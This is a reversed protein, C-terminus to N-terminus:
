GKIFLTNELLADSLQKQDLVVKGEIVTSKAADQAVKVVLAASFGEMQKAVTKFNITSSVNFASITKKLLGEIEIIGPKPMEIIDDFRRFLANDIIGDFNTTAILLGPSKLDELLGLLMNVLRHMEGVDHGHGRSKAIFDFEDLLIVCPYNEFVDFLKKLNSASEGLYSSIIAEFRVKLFPLGINWAIREATMSKGCGPSGYLLIKQKPRLGYHALRERAVYEKEIRHIRDEINQPLIMEHRLYDREVFDALPVKFRNDTPIIIGNPLLSKLNGKFSNYAHTNRRLIDKLKAALKVHGKIEEDIIIKEAIKIVDDNKDGEISRFLRILLEQNM